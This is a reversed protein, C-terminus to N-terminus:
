LTLEAVAANTRLRTHGGSSRIGTVTIGDFEIKRHRYRRKGLLHSSLEGRGAFNLQTLAKRPWM